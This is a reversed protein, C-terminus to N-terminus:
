WNWPGHWHGHPKGHHAPDRRIGMKLRNCWVTFCGGTKVTVAPGAAAAGGAVGGVVFGAESGWNLYWPDAPASNGPTLFYCYLNPPPPLPCPSLQGNKCCTKGNQMYVKEGCCGQPYSIWQGGCRKFHGQGGTPDMNATPVSQVYQYLNMGDSYQHMLASEDSVISSVTSGLEPPMAEESQGVEGTPDRSIWRGVHAAYYASAQEAISLSLCMGILLLSLRKANM